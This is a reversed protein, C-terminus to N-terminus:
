SIFEVTKGLFTKNSKIAICNPADYVPVIQYTEGDILYSRHEEESVAGDLKLVKYDGCNFEYTVRRM